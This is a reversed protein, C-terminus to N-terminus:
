SSLIQKVNLSTTEETFEETNNTYSSDDQGGCILQLPSNGSYGFSNRATSFSASSAWSTGDYKQVFGHRTGGPEEGGGMYADSSSTGAVATGTYSNPM